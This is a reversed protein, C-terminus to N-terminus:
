KIKLYKKFYKQPKVFFIIILLIIIFILITILVYLNRSKIFNYSLAVHDNELSFKCMKSALDKTTSLGCWLQDFQGPVCMYINLINRFKMIEVDINDPDKNDRLVEEYIKKYKIMGRRSVVYAHWCFCNCEYIYNTIKKGFGCKLSDVLYTKPNPHCYGLYFMDWDENNNMFNICHDIVKDNYFNSKIVDDEFVLINNMGSNLANIIINSHSDLSGYKPNSMREAFYFQFKINLDNMIKSIHEHRDTQEKLSLIVIDDFFDYM